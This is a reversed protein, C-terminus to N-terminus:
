ILRRGFEADLTRGGDRGQLCLLEMALCRQSEWDADVLRGTVSGRSIGRSRLELPVHRSLTGVHTQGADKMRGCLRESVSCRGDEEGYMFLLSGHCIEKGCYRVDRKRELLYYDAGM